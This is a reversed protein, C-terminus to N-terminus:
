NTNGVTSDANTVAANDLPAAALAADNEALADEDNLVFDSGAGTNTANDSKGCAATGLALSLALTTVIKKM